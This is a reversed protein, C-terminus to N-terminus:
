KAFMTNLKAILDPSASSESLTIETVGSSEIRDSLHFLEAKATERDLQNQKVKAAFIANDEQKSRAVVKGTETDTVEWIKTGKNLIAKYM